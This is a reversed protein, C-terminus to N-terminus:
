IGAGRLLKQVTAVVVRVRDMRNRSNVHRQRFDLTPDEMTLSRLIYQGGDAYEGFCIEASRIRCAREGARREEEV